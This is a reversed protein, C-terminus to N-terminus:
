TLRKFGEHAVPGRLLSSLTGKELSREVLAFVDGAEELYSRVLRRTHPLAAYFNKSALFDRRLMEQTFLTQIVQGEPHPFAFTTLPPIGSIQLPISCERAARSLGEGLELGIRNLHSPVDERRLKEITALAAV